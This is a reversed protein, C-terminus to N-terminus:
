GQPPSFLNLFISSAEAKPQIVLEALPMREKKKVPPSESLGLRDRVALALDPPNQPSPLNSIFPSSEPTNQVRNGPLYLPARRDAPIQDLNFSAPM